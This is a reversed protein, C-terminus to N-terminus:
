SRKALHPDLKGSSQYTDFSSIERLFEFASKINELGKGIILSNQRNLTEIGDTIALLKGQISKLEDKEPAQTYEIIDSLNINRASGADVIGFSTALGDIVTARLTELGKAKFTLKEIETSLAHLKDKERRSLLRKEEQLLGLLDGYLVTEMKLIEILKKIM